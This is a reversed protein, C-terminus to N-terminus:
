RGRSGIAEILVPEAYVVDDLNNLLKATEVTDGGTGSVIFLNPSFGLDRRVSLGYRNLLSEVASRSMASDFKVNLTDSVIKLRGDNDVVVNADGAKGETRAFKWGAQEFALAEGQDLANQEAITAAPELQLGEATVNPAIARIGSLPQIMGLKAALNDKPSGM